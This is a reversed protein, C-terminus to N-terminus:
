FNASSLWLANVDQPTARGNLLGVVMKAVQGHRVIIARLHERIEGHRITLELATLQQGHRRKQVHGERSGALVELSVM